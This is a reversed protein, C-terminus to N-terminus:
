SGEIESLYYQLNTTLTDLEKTEGLRRLIAPYDRVSFEYLQATKKNIVSTVTLLDLSKELESEPINKSGLKAIEDIQDRTFGQPDDSVDALWPILFQTVPDNLNMNLTKRVYSIFSDNPDEDEYVADLDSLKITQDGRGRVREMLKLCFEQVFAPHGGTREVVRQPIYLSEFEWGLISQFGERVIEEANHPRLNGLPGMDNLMRSWPDSNSSYPGHGRLCNYLSMFGAIIVRFRDGFRDSLSRLSEILAHRESNENIYRDIEDLMVVIRLNPNMDLYRILTQKFDQVDNYIEELGIEKVLQHTIYPDDFQQEGEFSYSVVQSGRVTILNKLAKLVSSKGIRRGGYIVYNEGSSAVRDILANRGVFIATRDDVVQNVTFIDTNVNKANLMMPRLIGLPVRGSAEALVMNLLVKEDIIVLGKNSFQDQLRRYLKDTCGPIFLFVFRYDLLRKEDIFDIVFNIDQSEPPDGPLAILICEMDLATNRPYILEWYEYVVPSENRIDSQSENKLWSINKSSERRCRRMSTMRAFYSFMNQIVEIGTRGCKESQISPLSGVLKWHQMLEVRTNIRSDNVTQFSLGLPAIEEKKFGNLVAIFDLDSKRLEQTGSLVLQIKETANRIEREPWSNRDLRYQVEEQYTHIHDHLDSNNVAQKASALGNQLMQFVAIPLDNRKNFITSDLENLEQWLQTIQTEQKLQQEKKVETLLDVDNQFASLIYQWQGYERAWYAASIDGNLALLEKEIKKLRLDNEQRIRQASKQNELSIHQAILLVQNPSKNELLYAAVQEASMPEALDALLPTFCSSWNFRQNTLEAILRPIRLVYNADELIEKTLTESVIHEIRIEDREIQHSRDANVIYDVAIQGFTTLESLYEVESRLDHINLGHSHANKLKAYEFLAEAYDTLDDVSDGLVRLAIRRHFADENISREYIAQEYRQMREDDEQFPELKANIFSKVQDLTGQTQDFPSELIKKTYKTLKEFIDALDVFFDNQLMSQHRMSRMSSLRVFRGGDRSFTQRAEKEKDLLIDELRHLRQDTFVEVRDGMLLLQWLRGWTPMTELPWETAVGWLFGEPLPQNGALEAATLAMCLEALALPDKTNWGSLFALVIQNLLEFPEDKSSVDALGRLFGQVVSRSYETKSKRPHVSSSAIEFLFAELFRSDAILITILQTAEQADWNKLLKEATSVWNGSKRISLYERVADSLEKEANRLSHDDQDEIEGNRIKDLLGSEIKINNQDDMQEIRALLDQLHHFSLERYHQIKGEAIALKQKTQQVQTQIDNLTMEDLNGHEEDIDLQSDDVDWIALRQYLTSIDIELARLEALANTHDDDYQVLSDVATKLQVGIQDATLEEEWFLPLSMGPRKTYALKIRESLIAIANNSAGLDNGWQRIHTQVIDIQALSQQYDSDHICSLLKAAADEANQKYDQGSKIINIWWDNLEALAIYKIDDFEDPINEEILDLQTQHVISEENESESDINPADESLLVGSLWALALHYHDRTPTEFTEDIRALIRSCHDMEWIKEVFGKGREHWSIKKDVPFDEEALQNQMDSVIDKNHEAWLAIILAVITSDRQFEPLVHKIALQIPIKASFKRFGRVNITKSFYDQVDSQLDLSASPFHTLAQTVVLSRYNNDMYQNIAVWSSLEFIGDM